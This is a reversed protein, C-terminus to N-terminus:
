EVEDHHKFIKRIDMAHPADQLFAHATLPEAHVWPLGAHHVETEFPWVSPPVRCGLRGGKGEKSM